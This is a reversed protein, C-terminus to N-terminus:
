KRKRWDMYKGSTTRGDDPREANDPIAWERGLKDASKIKGFFL